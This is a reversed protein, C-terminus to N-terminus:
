PLRVTWALRIHRLTLAGGAQNAAYAAEAEAAAEDWPPVTEGALRDYSTLQRAARDRDAVPGAQRDV